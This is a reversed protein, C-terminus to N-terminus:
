LPKGFNQCYFWTGSANQVASLGIQTINAALINDRHGTSNMWATVVQAPTTYGWAINERYASYEFGAYEMRSSVTPLKVGWLNHSHAATNGVVASRSAMQSAHQNAACAIQTNITLAALGRSTRELNTLRVIEMEFANMTYVRYAPRQYLYNTGIGGSMTNAGSGGWISDNGSRGYLKDAGNAGHIYDTGGGGNVTDDGSGAFIYSTKTISESITINDNGKEGVVVIANVAANNFTKGAVSIIGGSITMNITDANDTGRVVLYGNELVPTVTTVSTPANKVGFQEVPPMGTASEELVVDVAAFVRDLSDHDLLQNHGAGGNIYDAGAGGSMEDDGGRGFIRDNGEGGQLIDSKGSGYIVDNGGNGFARTPLNAKNVFRDNGDGGHFEVKNISSASYVRTRGGAEALRIRNGIRNVTVHSASDDSQIVLTGQDVVANAVSLLQRSELCELAAPASIERKSRRTTRNSSLLSRLSRLISTM